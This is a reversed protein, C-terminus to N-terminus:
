EARSADVSLGLGAGGGAWNVIARSALSRMWGDKRGRSKRANLILMVMLVVVLTPAVESREIRGKRDRRRRMSKEDVRPATEVVSNHESVQDV